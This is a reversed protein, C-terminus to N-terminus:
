EARMRIKPNTTYWSRDVFDPAAQMANTAIDEASNERVRIEINNVNKIKPKSTQINNPNEM